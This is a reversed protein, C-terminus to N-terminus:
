PSPYTLIDYHDPNSEDFRIEVSYLVSKEFMYWDALSYEYVFQYRNSVFSVPEFVVLYRRAEIEQKQQGVEPAEIGSYENVITVEPDIPNRNDGQNFYSDIIVWKDVDYTYYDDYVDEYKYSRVWISAIFIMTDLVKEKRGTNKYESTINYSNPPYTSWSEGHVTQYESVSGEILWAFSDIQVVEEQVTSTCAPTLFMLALVFFVLNKM